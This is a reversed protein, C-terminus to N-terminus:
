TGQLKLRSHVSGQLHGRLIELLRKCLLLLAHLAHQVLTAQTAGTM